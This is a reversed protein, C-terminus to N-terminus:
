LLCVLNLTICIHAYVVRTNEYSTGNLRCSEYCVTNNVNLSGFPETGFSFADQMVFIKSIEMFDVSNYEGDERGDLLGFEM